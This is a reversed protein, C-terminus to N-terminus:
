VFKDSEHGGGEGAFNESKSELGVFGKVAGGEVGDGADALDTRDEEFALGAGLAIGGDDGAERTRRQFDGGGVENADPEDFFLVGHEDLEKVGEANFVLFADHLIQRGGNFVFLEAGGHVAEEGFERGFGDGDIKEGEVVHVFGVPGTEFGHEFGVGAELEAVM